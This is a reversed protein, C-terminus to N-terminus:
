RIARRVEATTMPEVAHAADLLVLIESNVSRRNSEAQARLRVLLEEPVNKLTLNPMITM